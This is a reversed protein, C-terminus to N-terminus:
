ERCPQGAEYLELRALGAPKEEEPYLDLARQQWRIAEDFAGTEACAAGLTGLCYAHQWGTAACAKRALELARAGDRLRDDSCTALAWALNNCVFWENPAIRHAAKLDDLAAAPAGRQRHLMARSLLVQVDDSRRKLYETLDALADDSREQRQRVRARLAYGVEGGPAHRTAETYDDAAEDLEGLTERAMGRGVHGRADGPALDILQTFVELARGPESRRLWMDGLYAAANVPDRASAAAFDAEATEERFLDFRAEGRRCLAVVATADMEPGSAESLLAVAQDYDPLAAEVQGRSHRAQARHLYPLAWGPALRIAEDFDRLAEDIEGSRARVLGRCNLAGAHGPDMALAQACETLAEDARGASECAVARIFHLDVHRVGRRQAETSDAAAEPLRGAHFHIQARLAYGGAAAADLELARDCLRRAEDLNGSQAQQQAEELLQQAEQGPGDTPGFLFNNGREYITQLHAADVGQSVLWRSLRDGDLLAADHYWHQWRVARGHQLGLTAVLDAGAFLELTPGGLCQCHGFTTPDESIRLCESLERLAAPDSVDLLVPGGMARGRYLAGELVCVRTVRPLLADLDRQAPDPGDADGYLYDFADRDMLIAAGNQEFTVLPSDDGGVPQVREPRPPRARGPRPADATPTESPRRLMRGFLRRLFDM